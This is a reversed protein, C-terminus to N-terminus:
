LFEKNEECARLIQDIVAGYRARWDIWRQEREAYNGTDSAAAVDKGPAMLGTMRHFATAQIEYSLSPNM